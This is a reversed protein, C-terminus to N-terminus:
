TAARKAAEVLAREDSLLPEVKDLPIGHRAMFSLLEKRPIRRFKSEPVRFGNLTGNDCCRTITKLSLGCLAAAEGTTYVAHPGTKVRRM